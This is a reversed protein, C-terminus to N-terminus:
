LLTVTCYKIELRNVGVSLRYFDSTILPLKEDSLDYENFNGIVSIPNGQDDTTQTVNYTQLTSILEAGDQINIPGYENLAGLVRSQYMPSDINTTISPSDVVSSNSQVYEPTQNQVNPNFNGQVAYPQLNRSLLSDRLSQTSLYSLPVEPM